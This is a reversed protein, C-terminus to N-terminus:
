RMFTKIGGPTEPHKVWHRNASQQEFYCIVEKDNGPRQNTITERM